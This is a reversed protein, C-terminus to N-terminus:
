YVWDIPDVPAPTKVHKLNRRFVKAGLRDTYKTWTEWEDALTRVLYPSNASKSGKSFVYGGFLYTAAHRLTKFDLQGYQPTKTEFFVIMDGYQIPTRSPNIEYFSLQLIRWLEDYNIMDRHYGPEQRINVRDSSAITEGQFSLAAHFCNPGRFVSHSAVHDKAFKPLLDQDVSLNENTSIKRRISAIENANLFPSVQDILTQQLQVSSKLKKTPIFLEQHNKQFLARFADQNILGFASKDITVLRLETGPIEDGHTFNTKIYNALNIKSDKAAIKSALEIIKDERGEVTLQIPEIREDKLYQDLRDRVVTEPIPIQRNKVIIPLALNSQFSTVDHQFRSPSNIKTPVAAELPKMQPLAIFIYVLFLWNRKSELNKVIISGM